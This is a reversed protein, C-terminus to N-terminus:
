RPVGKCGIDIVLGRWAMAEAQEYARSPNAAPSGAPPKIAAMTGIDACLKRELILGQRLQAARNASTSHAQWFLGAGNVALVLVVLVLVNAHRRIAIM